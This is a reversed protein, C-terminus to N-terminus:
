NINSFVQLKRAHAKAILDTPAQLRRNLPPVITDKWPGIGVVHDKIYDLYKDSTIEDYTQKTDETLISFDDTLFVKPSDILKSIYVLSTPAFSQIFIPKELWDELMYGGKYGYKKLMQVFKDEFKKGDAWHKNIFVPNKIEPYIGVVRPANLAISIFEDFTIIQFKGNYQQDRFPFRQKARLTKIEELTFDVPFWGTVNAWQVEYTRKRDAFEKHEAVDTTADLTVDHMCILEGDKTALIDSEIFDACEEIARMYAAATEEPLEGNSGRHAINYPRFTRLPQKPKQSSYDHLPRGACGSVIWLMFVVVFCLSAM